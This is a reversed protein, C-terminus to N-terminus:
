QGTTKPAKNAKTLGSYRGYSRRLSVRTPPTHILILLLLEKLLPTFKRTITNDQADYIHFGGFLYIASKLPTPAENEEEEPDTFILTSASEQQKRRLRQKRLQVGGFILLDIVLIFIFWYWITNPIKQDSTQIFRVRNIRVSRNGSGDMSSTEWAPFNFKYEATSDFGLNSIRYITDCM